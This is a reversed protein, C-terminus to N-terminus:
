TLQTKDIFYWNDGSKKCSRSAMTFLVEFGEPKDGYNAELYTLTPSVGLDDEISMSGIYQRLVQDGLYCYYFYQTTASYRFQGQFVLGSTITKINESWGTDSEVETVADTDVIYYLEYEAFNIIKGENDFAPAQPNPSALSSIILNDEIIQDGTFENGGALNAKGSIDPLESTLALTGGESPLRVTIDDSPAANTRLTTTFGDRTFGILAINPDLTLAGDSVGDFVQNGTFTNGGALNAKEDLEDQILSPVNVWSGEGPATNEISQGLTGGSPLGSGGGGGAVLADVTETDYMYVFESFKNSQHRYIVKTADTKLVGKQVGFSNYSSWNYLTPNVIAM